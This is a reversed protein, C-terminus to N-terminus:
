GSNSEMRSRIRQYAHEPETEQILDAILEQDQILQIVQQILEAQKEREKIALLVIVRVELQTSGDTGMQGFAVPRDLTGLGVASRHVHDPDAHPIAVAHPQTPLGTPFTDEREWVDDAYAPDVHGSHVLLENLQRVAQHGTEAQIGLLM